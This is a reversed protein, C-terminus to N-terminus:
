YVTIRTRIGMNLKYYGQERSSPLLLPDRRM